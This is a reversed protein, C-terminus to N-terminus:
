VQRALFDGQVSVFRFSKIPRFREISEPTGFHERDGEWLLSYGTPSHPDVEISIASIRPMAKERTTVWNRALM